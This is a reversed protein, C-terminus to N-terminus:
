LKTVFHNNQSIVINEFLVLRMKSNKPTNVRQCLKFM